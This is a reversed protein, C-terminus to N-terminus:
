EFVGEYSSLILEITKIQKNTEVRHEESQDDCEADEDCDCGWDLLYDRLENLLRKSDITIDFNDCPSVWCLFDIAHGDPGIVCFDPYQYFISFGNQLLTSKTM